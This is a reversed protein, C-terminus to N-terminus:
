FSKETISTFRWYFDSMFYYIINEVTYLEDNYMHVWLLLYKYINTSSFIFNKMENLRNDNAASMAISKPNSAANVAFLGFPSLLECGVTQSLHMASYPPGTRWWAPLNVTIDIFKWVFQYHRLSGAGSYTTSAPMSLHGSSVVSLLQVFNIIARNCRM